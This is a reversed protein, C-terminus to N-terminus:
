QAPNGGHLAQALSTQAERSLCGLLMCCISLIYFYNGTLRPNKFHWIRVYFVIIGIMHKCYAVQFTAQAVCSFKKFGLKKFHRLLGM